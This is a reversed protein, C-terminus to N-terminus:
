DTLRYGSRSREILGDEHLGDLAEAVRGPDFGTAAVLSAFDAPEAILLRMVAGRAHRTSGQFRGQSRPPEYTGPGTCWDTVPCVGCRPTRPRCLTAGLDMMAQNWEAAPADGLADAAAAALPPGTLVEGHWRNLVRKLNTDVAAVQAGFAFAAIARATYPGIGPLAELGTVDAPWGDRAVVRAAAHLRKARNNYGLGSWLAAVRTFPAAALDDVTPFAALFREYHPIVRDAQTQQLMVESVLIAYPDRSGRWPLSRGHTLYWDLLKPNREGATAATM